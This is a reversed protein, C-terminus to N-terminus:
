PCAPKAPRSASPIPSRSRLRPAYAAEIAARRLRGAANLQGNAPSFPERAAVWGGVRAFDPLRANAAAVARGLAVQPDRAAASPVLVAWPQPLGDGFVAAASVAPEALLEHEVWEPSLKRGFATRLV